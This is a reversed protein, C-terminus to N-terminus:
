SQSRINRLFTLLALTIVAGIILFGWITDKLQYISLPAAKAIDSFYALLLYAAMLFLVASVISGLIRLRFQLQIFFLLAFALMLFFGGTFGKVLSEILASAAFGIILLLDPLYYLMKKMIRRPPNLTIKYM